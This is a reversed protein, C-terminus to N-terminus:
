RTVLRVSDDVVELLLALDDDSIGLPPMLVVVDGLPRVWVGQERAHRCIAFGARPVVPDVEIGVMTGIRRVDVVGPHATLPLLAAGIRQGIQHARAVTSREDMLRLNALAAACTVPNATYTHGHFFTKDASGLFAEYVAETALVASLPFMGGTLGKGCTLLDPVVGAHECAWMKGTRAIGTAVEDAVMLAGHERTLRRVGRLFQADHTLMGAAAQVMPEVVVACVRHGQEALLAELEAVVEAARAARSQPWSYLPEEPNALGVVGPSSIQAVSLLIPRYTAHFLDIGGVSVSGLTDGHYAERVSVILPRDEGRQACAQFAMKVAAEVASSGDGAYFVRNLVEQHGEGSGQPARRVLEEALEIGPEHTLGLFTSHDLKGLQAVVAEVLAPESHGHTTVWLSSVGDLYRRGDAATLWSGKASEVVLPQDDAWVAQQTFPHWVHALDRAVLQATRDTTTTM